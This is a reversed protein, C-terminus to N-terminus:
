LKLHSFNYTRQSPGYIGLTLFCTLLSFDLIDLISYHVLFKSHLTKHVKRLEINMIQYELTRQKYSNGKPGRVRSEEFGKKKM